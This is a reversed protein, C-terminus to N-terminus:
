QKSKWTDPIPRNHDYLCAALTPLRDSLHDALNKSPPCVDSGDVGDGNTMIMVHGTDEHFRIEIQVSGTREAILSLREFLDM